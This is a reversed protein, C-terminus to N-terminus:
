CMEIMNPLVLSQHHLPTMDEDDDDDLFGMQEDEMNHVLDISAHQMESEMDASKAAAAYRRHLSPDQKMTELMDATAQNFLELMIDDSIKQKYQNSNLLRVRQSLQQIQQVLDANSRVITDIDGHFQKDHHHRRERKAKTASRYKTSLGDRLSQTCKERAFVEDAEVWPGGKCQKKIFRGNAQHVKEIIDLVVQSKEMKNCAKSYKQTSAEVLKRYLRNGPHNWFQRGRACVVDASRPSCNQPHLSIKTDTTNSVITSPTVNRSYQPPNM